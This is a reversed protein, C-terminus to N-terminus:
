TRWQLYGARWPSSYTVSLLTQEGDVRWLSYHTVSLLTQKGKVRWPSHAQGGSRTLWGALRTTYYGLLATGKEHEETTTM